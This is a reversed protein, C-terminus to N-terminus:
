HAQRGGGEADLSRGAQARDHPRQHPATVSRDRGIGKLVFRGDKDTKLDTTLGKWSPSRTIRQSDDLQDVWVSVGPVGQGQLDIVRGLVPVDDPVLKLEYVNTESGSGAGRRAM